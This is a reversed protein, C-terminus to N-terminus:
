KIRSLAILSAGYLMAYKRQKWKPDAQHVVAYHLIKLRLSTSM